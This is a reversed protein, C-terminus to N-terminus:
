DEQRKKAGVAPDKGEQKDQHDEGGLALLGRHASWRKLPDWVISRLMVSILCHVADDDEYRNAPSTLEDRLGDRLNRYYSDNVAKWQIFSKRFVEFLCVGLAWTDVQNTYPSCGAKEKLALVEPALYRVTGRMHNTSTKARAAHGFDLLVAQPPQVGVLGINDLKIDRHM